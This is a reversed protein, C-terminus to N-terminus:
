GAGQSGRTGIDVDLNHRETPPQLTRTQDPRDLARRRNPLTCVHTHRM